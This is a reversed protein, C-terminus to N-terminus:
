LAPPGQLGWDISSGVSPGDISALSGGSFDGELTYSKVIAQTPGNEFRFLPKPAGGTNRFTIHDYVDAEGPTFNTTNGMQMMYAFTPDEGYIAGYHNPAWSKLIQRARRVLVNDITSTRAKFDIGADSVDEILGDRVTVNSYTGEVAIGDANLYGSYDAKINKLSFRRITINSGGDNADKGQLAVGAVVDGSDTCPANGEYVLDEM